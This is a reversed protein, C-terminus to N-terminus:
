DAWGGSGGGGRVKTGVNWHQQQQKPARERERQVEAGAGRHAPVAWARHSMNGNGSLDKLRQMTNSPSEEQKQKTNLHLPCIIIEVAQTFLWQSFKFTAAQLNILRYYKSIKLFTMSICSTHALHFLDSQQKEEGGATHPSVASGAAAAVSEYDFESQSAAKFLVMLKQRLWQDSRRRRWM